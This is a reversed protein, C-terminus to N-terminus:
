NLLHTVNNALHLAFSVYVSIKRRAGRHAVCFLVGFVGAPSVDIGEHFFDGAAAYDGISLECFKETEGAACAGCSAGHGAAGGAASDRPVSNEAAAASDQEAIGVRLELALKEFGFSDGEGASVYM